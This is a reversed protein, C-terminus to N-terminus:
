LFTEKLYVELYGCLKVADSNIVNQTNTVFASCKNRETTSMAPANLKIERTPKLTKVAAYFEQM